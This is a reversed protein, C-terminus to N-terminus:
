MKFDQSFLCSSCKALHGGTVDFVAGSLNCTARATETILLCSSRHCQWITQSGAPLAFGDGGNSHAEIHKILAKHRGQESLKNHLQNRMRCLPFEGLAEENLFVHYLLETFLGLFNEGRNTEM